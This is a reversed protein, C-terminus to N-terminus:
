PTRVLAPLTGIKVVEIMLLLSRDEHQAAPQQQTVTLSHLSYLITVTTHCYLLGSDMVLLLDVRNSESFLKAAM